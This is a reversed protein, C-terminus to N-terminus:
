NRQPLLQQVGGAVLLYISTVILGWHAWSEPHFDVKAAWWAFGVWGFAMPLTIFRWRQTR